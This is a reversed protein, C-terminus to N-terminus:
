DLKNTRGDLKKLTRKVIIRGCLGLSGSPRKGETEGGSFRYAQRKQWVYAVHSAWRM